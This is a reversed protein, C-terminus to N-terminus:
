KNLKLEKLIKNSIGYLIVRKLESLAYDRSSIAVECDHDDLIFGHTDNNMLLVNSDISYKGQASQAKLAEAENQRQCLKMLVDEDEQSYVTYTKAGKSDVCEYLFFM